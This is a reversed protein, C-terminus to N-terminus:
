REEDFNELEKKVFNKAHEPIINECCDWVSTLEPYKSEKKIMKLYCNGRDFDSRGNNQFEFYGCNQCIKLAFGKEMLTDSIEKIAESLRLYKQSSMYKKEYWFVVRYLADENIIQLQTTLEMDGNTLLVDVFTSNKQLKLEEEKQHKHQIYESYYNIFYNSFLALPSFMLWCVWFTFKQFNFKAVNCLYLFLIFYYFLVLYAGQYGPWFGQIFAFKILFLCGIIIFFEGPYFASLIYEKSALTYDSSFINKIHNKFVFFKKYNIKNFFDLINDITEYYQKFVRIDPTHEMKIGMNSLTIPLEFQYDSDKSFNNRIQLLVEKKIAFIDDNLYNLMGAINRGVFIITNLFIKRYGITRGVFSYFLNKNLTMGSVVPTHNIKDNLRALFDARVTCDGNLFVFTDSKDNIFIRDFFWKIAEAKGVPLGDESNLRWLRTGSSIELVRATDDTCNDLIVNITYKEKNYEQNKLANILTTITQEANQAYVVVNFTNQYDIAAIKNEVAVIRTKSACYIVYYFYVYSIALYVILLIAIINIIFLFM